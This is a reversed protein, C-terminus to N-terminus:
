HYINHDKPKQNRIRGRIKSARWLRRWRKVSRGRGICYSAINTVRISRMRWGTFYWAGENIQKYVGTKNLVHVCMLRIWIKAMQNTITKTPPNITQTTTKEWAIMTQNHDTKPDHKIRSAPSVMPRVRRFMTFTIQFTAWPCLLPYLWWCRGCCSWLWCCSILLVM